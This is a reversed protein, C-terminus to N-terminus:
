SDMLYTLIELEEFTFTVLRKPNDRITDWRKTYAGDEEEEEPGLMLGAKELMAYSALDMGYETEIGDNSEREEKIKDFWTKRM